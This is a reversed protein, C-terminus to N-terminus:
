FIKNTNKFNPKPNCQICVDIQPLSNDECYRCDMFMTYGGM